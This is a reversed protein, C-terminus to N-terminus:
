TACQLKSEEPLHSLWTLYKRGVKGGSPAPAPNQHDSVVEPAQPLPTLFHLDGFPLARPADQQFHVTQNSAPLISPM